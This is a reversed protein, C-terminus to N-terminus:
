DNWRRMRVM